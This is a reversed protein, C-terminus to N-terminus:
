ARLFAPREGGREGRPSPLNPARYGARRLLQYTAAIPLGVVCSYSGYVAEVFLAGRGQVGYAGAKDLPEGTEVYWDIEEEDLSAFRVRTTEEVVEELGRDLHCIAVGTRVEHERGALLRLMRRADDPDAPKGLMEGGSVVITDAGLVLEGPRAAGPRAAAAAKTRALRRVYHSPTEQAGVSEDVDVPRVVLEFGLGELLERRRPSGSALVLTQSATIPGGLPPRDGIM